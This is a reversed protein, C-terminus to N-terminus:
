TTDEAIRSSVLIFMGDAEIVIEFTVPDFPLGIISQEHIDAPHIQVIM